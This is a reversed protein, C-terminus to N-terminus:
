KDILKGGIVNAGVGIMEGKDKSFGHGDFYFLGNITGTSDYSYEHFFISHGGQKSSFWWQLPYGSSLAGKWVDDKTVITALGKRALAGPM